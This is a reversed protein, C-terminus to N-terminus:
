RRNSFPFCKVIMCDNHKSTSLTKKIQYNKQNDFLCTITATNSDNHRPYIRTKLYTKKKKFATTQINSIDTSTESTPNKTNPSHHHHTELQRTSGEEDLSRHAMEEPRGDNGKTSSKKARDLGERTRSDQSTTLLAQDHSSLPTSRRAAWYGKGKLDWECFNKGM